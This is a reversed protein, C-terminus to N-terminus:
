IRLRWPQHHSQVSGESPQGWHHVCLSASQPSPQALQCNLRAIVSKRGNHGTVHWASGCILCAVPAFPVATVSQVARGTASIYAPAGHSARCLVSARPNETIGSRGLARKCRSICSAGRRPARRLPFLSRPIRSCLFSRELFYGNSSAFGPWLNASSGGLRM